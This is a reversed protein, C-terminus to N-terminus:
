RGTRVPGAALQAPLPSAPRAGDAEPRPRAPVAHVAPAALTEKLAAVHEPTTYCCGGVLGVGLEPCARALTAFAGPRGVVEMRGYADVNLSGANPRLSLPRSAFSALKRGVELMGDPGIRCNLGVADVGM